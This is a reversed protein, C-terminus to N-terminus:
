VKIIPKVDINKLYEELEKPSLKYTILGKDCGKVKKKKKNWNWCKAKKEM